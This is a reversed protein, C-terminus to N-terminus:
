DIALSQVSKTRLIYELGRVKGIRGKETIVVAEPIVINGSKGAKFHGVM